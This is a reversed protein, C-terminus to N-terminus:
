YSTRTGSADDWSSSSGGGDFAGAGTAIAAGAVAATAATAATSSSPSDSSFSTGRDNSDISRDSLSTLVRWGKIKSWKFEREPHWYRVAQDRLNVTFKGPGLRMVGGEPHEQLLVRSVVAGADDLFEVPRGKEGVAGFRAKAFGLAPLDNWELNPPTTLRARWANVFPLVKAPHFNPQLEPFTAKFLAEQRERAAAADKGGRWAQRAVLVFVAIFAILVLFGPEPM